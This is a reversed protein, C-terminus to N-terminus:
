APVWGRRRYVWALVEAVAAYLDIPIPKGVKATALLARALPKNEITPVGGERAIQKIRQALKREGMALVIPAGSITADYKLAVAIHTPNTIVVDAKKVDALMRKRRMAQGLARIRQKILPNGDQEKQEQIVEQKTMKLSQEYQWVEFLYDAVALALFSFGTTLILRFALTQITMIFQGLSTTALPVVTPLADRLTLYTIWGLVALKVVAKFLGFFAKPGIMKSLGQMPNLADFKPKLGTLSVHGRSQVVGVGAILAFLMALAPLVALGLTRAVAIAISHAGDVTLEPAQLWAASENLFRHAQEAMTSGGSYVLIMAAGLLTVAASLEASRPLRGEELAQERRKPTADETKEADSGEDGFLVM